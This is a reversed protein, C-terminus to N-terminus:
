AKNKECVILEGSTGRCRDRRRRERSAGEASAREAVRAGETSETQAIYDAAVAVSTTVAVAAITVDYCYQSAM